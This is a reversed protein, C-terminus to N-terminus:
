KEDGKQITDKEWVNYFLFCQYPFTMIYNELLTAYKQVWVQLQEKKNTRSTYEPYLVHSFDINYRNHSLKSTLLVVVPCKAATALTFAGYPFYATENLFEVPVTNFDYSRDGMISVVKGESLVKLIEVVGGLHQEPSIVKIDAKENSVKLSDRVAKNDEPRMVLHVTKGINQLTAMAVQWNGVHSTLLIVGNPSNELLNVFTDYGVFDVDFLNENHVIVYRDILQQGQSIFLQYVHIYKKVVSTHPFRKAIYALAARVAARDFLVYHLCVIYLLGYTCRLGFVRAWIKFILIGFANGRKKVKIRPQSTKDM